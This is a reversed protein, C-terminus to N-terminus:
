SQSESDQQRAKELKKRLIEVQWRLKITNQEEKKLKRFLIEKLIDLM